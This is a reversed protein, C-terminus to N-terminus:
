LDFKQCGNVVLLQINDQHILFCEIGKRLITKKEIKRGEAFFMRQSPQLRIKNIINLDQGIICRFDHRIGCDCVM